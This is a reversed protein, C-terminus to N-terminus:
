TEDFVLARPGMVWVCALALRAKEGGSMEHPPVQQHDRLDFDDIADRVARRMVATQVGLNELGFAVEREVTTSVFQNDPDQFLLGVRRRVEFRANPDSTDFGQVIVRGRSPLLTGNLLRVLTTKGSGNGGLLAVREGAGLRLSVGRLVPKPCGPLEVTVDHVEIM